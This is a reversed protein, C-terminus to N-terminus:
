TKVFEIVADLFTTETYDNYTTDSHPLLTNEHMYRVLTYILGTSSNLYSGPKGAEPKVYCGRIRRRNQESVMQTYIQLLQWEIMGWKIPDSGDTNLYGIYKREIEKLPGFKVKAMADDVYGMEPQLDMSGKWVEGTQYAQSVETFFANTMLERDQVGYRRPYLDYVNQLVIIRAILADQRMVVYQDGLGADKLESFDNTFGSTLKEPILLNNKKLFAYRAALSKGYNRVENRFSVGDSDEDAVHLTAYDPNNAIINWRKKMDFLLINLASCILQPQEQVLCPSNNKIVTQPNDNTAQAAVAALSRRLETNEQNSTNLASVLSQVSEVLSQPQNNDGNLNDGQTNNDAASSADSHQTDATNIINLAAEREAALEEASQAAQMAESMSM